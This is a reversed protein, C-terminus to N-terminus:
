IRKSIIFSMTLKRGVRPRMSVQCASMFAPKRTERIARGQQKARAVADPNGGDCANDSGDNALKEDGVDIAHRQTNGAGSGAQDSHEEGGYLGQALAIM